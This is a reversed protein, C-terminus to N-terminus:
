TTASVPTKHRREVVRISKTHKSGVSAMCTWIEQFVRDINAGWKRVLVLRAGDVEFDEFNVLGQSSGSARPRRCAFEDFLAFFARCVEYSNALNYTTGDRRAASFPASAVRSLPHNACACGVQSNGNWDTDGEGWGARRRMRLRSDHLDYRSYHSTHPSYTRREAKGM